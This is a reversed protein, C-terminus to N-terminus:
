GTTKEGTGPSSPQPWPRPHIHESVGNVGGQREREGEAVLQYFGRSNAPPKFADTLGMVTEAGGLVLYGGPNTQRALRDLIDAKTKRDFYILVNRCFIIDFKGLTAFDDLLNFNRYEVMNKIAPKIQWKDGNQEFYKVLMKVALGRQVEFQSYIGEVAKALIDNSIDSALIDINWGALKAQMESIEMAISYPEQGASAAASWIRLKKSDKRREVLEPIMIDRFNVFPTKDRYFFTENITMAEVIKSQLERSASNKLAGVLESLNEYGNETALPLLRSEVLYSKGAALVFGSQRKLLDHLFQFEDPKM